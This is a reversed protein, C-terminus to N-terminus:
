ILDIIKLVIVKNGRDSKIIIKKDYSTYTVNGQAGGEIKYKFRLLELLDNLDDDRDYGIHSEIVITGKKHYPETGILTKPIDITTDKSSTITTKRLDQDDLLKYELHVFTRLPFLNIVNSLNFSIYIKNEANGTEYTSIQTAM